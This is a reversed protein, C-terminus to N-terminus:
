PLQFRTAVFYVQLALTGVLLARRRGGALAAFPLPWVTYWGLLWTSSVVLALYAWGCAALSDGGRWARVLMGVLTVGFLATFATKVGSPVGALGLWRAVDHPVSNKSVLHQEARLVGLMGLAHDPFAVAAVGAVLLAGAVVGALVRWRHRAGLALFPIALGASAKIAVASALAAGGLTSRGAVVLAFAGLMGALMLLDNHGGGVTWVLLVPNLGFIAIAAKQSRGLRGAINWVLAVCGLSAAATSVKLLALADAPALHGLSYSALTYLPGYVSVTHRWHVFPYIVDHPRTAPTSVYPDLHHVTGLRAYTLYSFIDSSLLPPGLMFVVHLVAIAGVLWRVTLHGVLALAGLYGIAMVLLLLDFQARTIAVSRDLLGATVGPLEGALRPTGVGSLAIAGGCAVVVLLSVAGIAPRLTGWRVAGVPLPRTSPVGAM